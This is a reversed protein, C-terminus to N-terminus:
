APEKADCAPTESLPLLKSLKLQNGRAVRRYRVEDMVKRIIHMGRGSLATQDPLLAELRSPDPPKGQDLITLELLGRRAQCRIEISRDYVGEYSHRIINALAEDVALAVGRSDVRPLGFASSLEEMAARVVILFRPDSPLRFHLSVEM